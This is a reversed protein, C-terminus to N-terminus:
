AFVKKDIMLLRKYLADMNDKCANIASEEHKFTDFVKLMKNDQDQLIDKIEEMEQFVRKYDTGKVFVDYPVNEPIKHEEIDQFEPIDYKQKPQQTNSQASTVYVPQPPTIGFDELVPPEITEESYPVYNKWDPEKWELDSLFLQNIESSIDEPITKNESPLDSFQPVSYQAPAYQEQNTQPYKPATTNNNSSNFQPMDDQMPSLPPLDELPPLDLSPLSLDANLSSGDIRPLGTNLSRLDGDQSPKPEKKKLFNLFGM